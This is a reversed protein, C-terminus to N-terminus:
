KLLELRLESCNGTMVSSKHVPMRDGGKNQLIDFRNIGGANEYVTYVEIARGGFMALFTADNSGRRALEIEAGNNRDSIPKKKRADVLLIDYEGNPLRHLTILGGSVADKRFESKDKPVLMSHHYLAYGEPNACVAVTEQALSSHALLCLVVAPLARTFQRMAPQGGQNVKNTAAVALAIRTKSNM